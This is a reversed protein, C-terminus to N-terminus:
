AKKRSLNQNQDNLYQHSSINDNITNILRYFCSINNEGIKIKYYNNNEMKHKWVNRKRGKKTM